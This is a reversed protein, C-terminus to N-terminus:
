GTTVRDDGPVTVATTEITTIGEEHAQHPRAFDYGVIADLAPAGTLAHAALHGSMVAGEFSGIDMGTSIWDSALALNSAGSAWAQPRLVGSGPPSPVYRENPDANARWYQLDVRAEGEAGADPPCWLLDPDFAGGTFANTGAAPLVSCASRLWQVFTARAREALLDPTGHVDPAPWPGRHAMPGCLYILGRPGGREPWAEGALVDSMDALGLPQVAATGITRDTGPLRPLGLEHTTVTTWIQAAMTMVGPMAEVAPAWPAAAVLTPALEALSPLPLASIICDYDVDAVLTEHAVPAWPTWWSELDIGGAELEEGQVLQASIPSAPWALTGDPVTVLPDYPADGITTAQVDVEVREIRGTAEDFVLETVRRFFRVDVGRERAVRYFPAIVTDGTGRTFWYSGQGCSLLQRLVFWLFSSTAMTPALSADGHPVQFCIQAPVQTASSTVAAEAMGHRRLWDLYDEHDVTALGREFVGDAIVGRLVTVYLEVQCWASRIRAARSTGAADEVHGRLHLRAAELLDLAGRHHGAHPERPDLEERELIESLAALHLHHGGPSRLGEGAGPGFAEELISLVERIIEGVLTAPDPVNEPGWPDLDNHPMTQSTLEWRRELMDALTLHNSPVLVQDITEVRGDPGPPLEQLCGDLMRMANTYMNGFLHIGHEQIRADGELRWGGAGDPVARGRRGTAGKGGVRWGLQLLTVEYEDRWTPHLDPDTLSLAAALGAPGGGVILIKRRETM